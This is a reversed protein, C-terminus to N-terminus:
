VAFLIFPSPIFVKVSTKKEGAHSFSGLLRVFKDTIEIHGWVNRILNEMILNNSRNDVNINWVQTSKLLLTKRLLKISCLPFTINWINIDFFFHRIQAFTHKHSLRDRRLVVAHKVQCVSGLTGKWHAYPLVNACLLRSRTNHHLKYIQLQCPM